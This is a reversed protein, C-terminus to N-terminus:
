KIGEKQKDLIAEGMWQHWEVRSDTKDLLTGMRMYKKYYDDFDDATEVKAIAPSLFQKPDFLPMSDDFFEDYSSKITNWIESISQYGPVVTGDSCKVIAILREAIGYCYCHSALENKITVHDHDEYFFDYKHLQMKNGYVLCLILQYPNLRCDEILEIQKEYKLGADSLEWGKLKLTSEWGCFPCCISKRVNNTEFSIGDDFYYPKLNYKSKINFSEHCNRCYLARTTYKRDKTAGNTIDDM